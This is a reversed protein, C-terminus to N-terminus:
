ANRMEERAAHRTLLIARMLRYVIARRPANGLLGFSTTPAVRHARAAPSGRRALWRRPDYRAANRGSVYRRAPPYGVVVRRSDAHRFIRHSGRVRQLVFGDAQLARVFQRASVGRPTQTM